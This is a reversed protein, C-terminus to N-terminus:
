SISFVESLEIINTVVESFEKGTSKAYNYCKEGLKTLEIDFELESLDGFTLASNNRYIEFYVDPETSKRISFKMGAPIIYSGAKVIAGFGDLEPQIDPEYYATPTDIYPLDEPVTVNDLIFIRDDFLLNINRAFKEINIIM